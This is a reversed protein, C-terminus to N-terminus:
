FLSRAGTIKLMQAVEGTEGTITCTRGQNVVAQRLMLLFTIGSTNISGLGKLDIVCSENNVGSAIQRVDRESISSPNLKGSLLIRSLGDEDSFEV